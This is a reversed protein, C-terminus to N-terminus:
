KWKRGGIGKSMRLITNEKNDHNQHPHHTHIYIYTDLYISVVYENKKTNITHLKLVSGKNSSLWNISKEREEMRLM